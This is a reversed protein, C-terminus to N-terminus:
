VDSSGIVVLGELVLNEVYLARSNLRPELLKANGGSLVVTPEEEGSDIVYTVMREIAGALANIAGTAIADETNDPFFRFQGAQPRLKATGRVLAERMLDYGAVICGGLFIGDNSLADVTMTTGANVVICPGEQLARAGILAAWRDSGLQSPDAYSSRVGCQQPQAVLWVVSQAPPLAASIVQRTGDGAVNAIAIREVAPNGGLADAIAEADATDVAGSAIWEGNASIGWKLRTNGADVALVKM